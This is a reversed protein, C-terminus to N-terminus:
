AKNAKLRQLPGQLKRARARVAPFPCDLAWGLMRGAEALAEDNHHALDFVAQLTFTRLIRSDSRWFWRTFIDLLDEIEMESLELRVLIQALHWRVENQKAVEVLELLHDKHRALPEINQATSKELADAARMRVEPATHSLLDVLEDIHAPKRVALSVAEAVRGTTRRDGEKLLSLMQGM